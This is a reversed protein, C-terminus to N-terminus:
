RSDRAAPPAAVDPGAGRALRELREVTEFSRARALEPHNRGLVAAALLLLVSAVLAGEAAGLLAGGARDAWGLGAWRVGRKVLRGLWVVAVLAALAVGAGAVWPLAAGLAEGLWPDLQRAVPAHLWRGALCGAALAAISFAERVLGLLLGRLVALGLVAGVVLDAPAVSDM